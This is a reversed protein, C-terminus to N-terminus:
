MGPKNVSSIEDQDQPKEEKNFMDFVKSAEGLILDIKKQSSPKLSSATSLTKYLQKLQDFNLNQYKKKDVAYLLVLMGNRIMDPTVNAVGLMKGFALISNKDGSGGANKARNIWELMNSHNQCDPSENPLKTPESRKLAKLTDIPWNKNNKKDFYPLNPIASYNYVYGIPIGLTEFKKNSELQGQDFEVLLNEQPDREKLEILLLEAGDILGLVDACYKRIGEGQQNSYPAFQEFSIGNRDFYTSLADNLVSQIVNEKGAM